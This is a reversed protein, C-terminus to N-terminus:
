VLYSVIRLPFQKRKLLLFTIEAELVNQTSYYAKGNMDSM